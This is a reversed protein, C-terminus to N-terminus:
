VERNTPLTLHTYSVAVPEVAYLLTISTISFQLIIIFKKVSTHVPMRLIHLTDFVVGSSFKRSFFVPKREIATKGHVSGESVLLVDLRSTLISCGGRSFLPASLKEEDADVVM